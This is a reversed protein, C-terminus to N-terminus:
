NKTNSILGEFWYFGFEHLLSIYELLELQM